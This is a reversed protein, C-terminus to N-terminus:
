VIIYLTNNDYSELNDYASQTLKVINYIGSSNPIQSTDSKVIMTGSVFQSVSIKKTTSTDSPDDMILIIDDDSLSDSGEPFDKIRKISM